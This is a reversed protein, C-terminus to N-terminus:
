GVGERNYGSQTSYGRDLGSHVAYVPGDNFCPSHITIRRTIRSSTAIIEAVIRITTGTPAADGKIWIVSGPVFVGLGVPKEVLVGDAGDSVGVAVKVALKVGVLVGEGVAVKVGVLVGVAVKVGVLVGDGVGVGM